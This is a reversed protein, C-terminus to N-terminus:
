FFSNAQQAGVLGATKSRIINVQKRQVENLFMEQQVGLKDRAASSVLHDAIAQHDACYTFGNQRAGVLESHNNMTRVLFGNNIKFVVMAAGSDSLMDSVRNVSRQAEKTEEENNFVASRVLDGFWKKIFKM